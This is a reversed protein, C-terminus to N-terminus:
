FLVYIIVEHKIKQLKYYKKKCADSMDISAVSSSTTPLSSQLLNYSTSPLDPSKTASSEKSRQVNKLHKQGVVHQEFPIHGTCAFDECFKCRFVGGPLAVVLFLFHSASYYCFITVFLFMGAASMDVEKPQHLTAARMHKGGILHQDWQSQSNLQIKCPTCYFNM